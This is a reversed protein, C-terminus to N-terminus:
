RKYSLFRSAWTMAVICVLYILLFILTKKEKRQETWKQYSLRTKHVLVLLYPAFLLCFRDFTPNFFVVRVRERVCACKCVRKSYNESESHLSAMQHASPPLTLTFLRSLSVSYLLTEPEVATIRKWKYQSLFGRYKNLGVHNTEVGFLSDCNKLNREVRKHVVECNWPRIKALVNLHLNNFTVFVCVNEWQAKNYRNYYVIVAENCYMM